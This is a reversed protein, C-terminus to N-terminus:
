WMRAPGTERPGTLELDGLWFQDGPVDPPKFVQAFSPEGAGLRSLYTPLGGALQAASAV